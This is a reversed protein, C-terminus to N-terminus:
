VKSFNSLLTMLRGLDYFIGLQFLSGYLDDLGVGPIAEPIGGPIAEFLKQYSTVHLHSSM